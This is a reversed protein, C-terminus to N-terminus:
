FYKENKGATIVLTQVVDQEAQTVVVVRTVRINGKRIRHLGVFM